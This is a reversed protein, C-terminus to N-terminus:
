PGAPDPGVVAGVFVFVFLFLVGGLIGALGGWRFLSKEGDTRQLENVIERRYVPMRYKRHLDSYVYLTLRDLGM